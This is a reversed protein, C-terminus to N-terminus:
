VTVCGGEGAGHQMKVFMQASFWTLALFAALVLRKTVNELDNTSSM